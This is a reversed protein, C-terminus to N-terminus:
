YDDREGFQIQSQRERMALAIRKNCIQIYDTFKRNTRLKIENKEIGVFHRGEVIASVLFSGSGCCNDLVIDGPNSYTRILYCGLQVPKQTPHYNKDETEATRAYIYDEQHEGEFFVVDAPYRLGTDNRIPSAKFANYNESQGRRVGRDYPRGKRLQPHYVSQGDYFVCIDEHKRLPQRQVNLFNTAKSKIWVIKYRFMEPNSLILKATFLGSGTLLVVANKKIIRRYQVWLRKLDIAKDWSNHTQGYPLDCLIMDICKDPLEPLVELCDGEILKDIYEEINAM